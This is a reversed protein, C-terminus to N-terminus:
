EFKARAVLAALQPGEEVAEELSREMGQLAATPAPTGRTEEQEASRVQGVPVMRVVRVLGAVEAVAM